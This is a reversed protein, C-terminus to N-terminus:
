FVADLDTLLLFFSIFFKIMLIRILSHYYNKNSRFNPYCRFREFFLRKLALPQFLCYKFNLVINKMVGFIGIRDLHKFFLQKSALQQFFCHKFNLVINENRRFNQIIKIARNLM